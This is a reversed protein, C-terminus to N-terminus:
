LNSNLLSTLVPDVFLNLLVAQVVASIVIIGIIQFIGSTRDFIKIIVFFAVSAIGLGALGPVADTIIIPIVTILIVGLIKLNIDLIRVGIFIGVFQLILSVPVGM